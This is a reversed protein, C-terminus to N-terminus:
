SQRELSIFRNQDDTTLCFTGRIGKATVHKRLHRAAFRVTLGGRTRAVVTDAEGSYYRRLEDTTISFDLVYSHM